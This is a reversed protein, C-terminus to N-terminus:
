ENEGEPWEIRARCCAAGETIRQSFVLRGGCLGAVVGEDMAAMFRCVEPTYHAALSCRRITVAGRADIRKDIALTRYLFRLAAAADARSRVPLRSRIDQGLRLSRDYLDKQVAPATGGALAREAEGRTFRAYGILMDAHSQGRLDPLERDFAAATFRFLDELRKRKGALPLIALLLRLTLNAMFRFTKKAASAAM